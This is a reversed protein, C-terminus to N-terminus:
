RGRARIVVLVAMVTAALLSIAAGVAVSRPAFRFVVRHRGAPVVVARQSGNARLVPVAEDDVRASWGPYPNDALVLWGPDQMDVSVHVEDAEYRDIVATGGRFPADDSPAGAPRETLLVERRPDFDEAVLTSLVSAEDVVRARGVVFCRDLAARNRYVYVPSSTAVADLDNSEVPLLALVYKGNYLGLLKTFAKSAGFGRPRYPNGLREYTEHVLGRTGSQFGWLADVTRPVMNVYGDVTALGYLLPLSPQLVDRQLVYPTLDGWWGRAARYAAVHTEPADITYIRFNSRDRQLAPVTAPPALWRDAPVSPLRRWQFHALDAVTVVLVLLALPRRRSAPIARSLRQWGYGALITLAMVVLLMCRTPHRFLSLGPLVRFLLAFVPTNPGLVVLYAGGAVGAFVGAAGGERHCTALGYMALLFPLIGFYGYNEYFSSKPRYTGNGPDGNCGPWVFNMVDPVYYPFAAAQEYTVGGGRGWQQSLELTPVVQVAALCGGLGFAVVFWVVFRRRVGTTQWMRFGFYATATVAGYYAVQPHGALIQLAFVGGAAVLWGPEERELTTELCWLLLPVWAASNLMDLHKVHCILFGNLAFAVMALGAAAPELGLRRCLLYMGFGALFLHGLINLNHGPALPFLGYWIWNPPYCRGLQIHAVAPIGGYVEPIWMPFRLARLSRGLDARFPLAHNNLDSIHLDHQILVHGQVVLSWGVVVIAAALVLGAKVGEGAIM